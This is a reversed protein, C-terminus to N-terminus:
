TINQKSAKKILAMETTYALIEVATPKEGKCPIAFRRAQVFVDPTFAGAEYASEIDRKVEEITVGYQSATQQLINEYKELNRQQPKSLQLKNM